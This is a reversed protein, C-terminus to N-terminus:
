EWCILPLENPLVADRHYPVILVTYGFRGTNKVQWKGIYRHDGDGLDESWKMEVKEKVIPQKDGDAPTNVLKVSVDKPSLNGLHIVAEVQLDTGVPIPGSVLSDCNKVRVQHWNEKIKEFWQMLEKVTQFNNNKLMRQRRLAPLYFRETYEHVMRNTNFRACLTAMSAKMKEIWKRPLGDAGRQYYLPIIEKELIDYITEAEIADQVEPDDYEEGMGIAWGVQPNYAEDWWGDRISLNLGGNPLVKMGSTGSAELPRRPNNLWVDAGQVMYRAVEINYDELFVFRHRVEPDRAFNVLKKILEKGAKDKPHAKGAYIIQVPYKDNCLIAKLREPNKLLLTARKYAAFRRAFCITLHDANLVEEATKLDAEGLGRREYSIRLRKRAFAVLRQKRREHTRWLEEDPIKKVREWIEQKTPESEWRPGLYRDLLGSMENSVWSRTHVGNTIHTIPRDDEDFDPWHDKFLRRSVEGHLRSVGNIYCAHNIALSAMNFLDKKLPKTEGNETPAGAGQGLSMLEDFSIGLETAFSSFYKEMMKKDFIDFGAPVPTHTTFVTGSGVFKRAEEFSLGNEKMAIRIRELISFASHGENLHCVQPNFGLDKLARIGGIGLVIEQLIRTESDGGYLQDTIDRYSEHEQEINTDLLFLRIKGVDARWIQVSLKGEPLDITIKLPDGSDNKVLRVPLNYFDNKPYLEQQWGDPSLYQQFYGEQYFLGVGVLPLGLESASKLHDGSLVGLGGSYTKLCETLGYEASFYAICSEAFDPHAKKFWGEQDVHTRFRAYVRDLNTLFSEDKSAYELVSQDIRGLMLVPNHGTEEWLDSDLRRFLAVTEHDWSFRFNFALERLPELPAPINPVVEYTHLKKQKRSRDGESM